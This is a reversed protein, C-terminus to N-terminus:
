RNANDNTKYVDVLDKSTFNLLDSLTTIGNNLIADRQGQRTLGIINLVATFAAPDNVSSHTFSAFHGFTMNSYNHHSHGVIIDILAVTM